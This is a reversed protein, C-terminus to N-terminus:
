PKYRMKERVYRQAERVVYGAVPASCGVAEAAEELTHRNFIVMNIIRRNRTPNAHTEIYELLAAVANHMDDNRIFVDEASITESATIIEGERESGDPPDGLSLSSPAQNRLKRGTDIICHEIITNLWTTLACQFHFNSLNRAVRCMVEQGIDELHDIPINKAKTYVRRKVFQSCEEWHESNRNRIMEEVVLREDAGPWYSDLRGKTM